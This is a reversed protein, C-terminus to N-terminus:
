ETVISFFVDRLRIGTPNSVSTRIGPLSTKPRHNNSEEPLVEIDLYTIVPITAYDDKLPLEILSTRCDKVDHNRIHVSSM